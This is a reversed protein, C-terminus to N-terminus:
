EGLKQRLYVELNDLRNELVAFRGDVHSEFNAAWGSLEAKLMLTLDDKLDNVRREVDGIRREVDGIRRELRWSMDFIQKNLILTDNLLKNLKAIPEVLPRPTQTDSMLPNKRTLLLKNHLANPRWPQYLEHLLGPKGQERRYLGYPQRAGRINYAFCSRHNEPDHQTEM